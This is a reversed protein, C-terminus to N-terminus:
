RVRYSVSMAGHEAMHPIEGIEVFGLKQIYKIALRNRAPINGILVDLLPGREGPFSFWYDIVRFGMDISRKGWCRKVYVFHSLAHNRYIGNLWAVGTIEGDVVIFVPLNAPDKLFRIFGQADRLEDSFVSTIVGDDYLEMFLDIILEDSISRAGNVEAYPILCIGDRPGVTDSM